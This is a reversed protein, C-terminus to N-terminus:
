DGEAAGRRGLRHLSVHDPGVEDIRTVGLLRLTRAVEDGLIELARDVGREGGAMLGYLYARGVM